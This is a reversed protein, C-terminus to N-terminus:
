GVPSQGLWEPSSSFPESLLFGGPSEDSERGEVLFRVYEYSTIETVTQVIAYLTLGVQLPDSESWAAPLAALDVFITGSEKVLFVARFQLGAPVAPTYGETTPLRNLARLINLLRAHDNDAGPVSRNEERVLIMRAPDICYLPVRLGGGVEAETREPDSQSDEPEIFEELESGTDVVPVEGSLLGSRWVFFGTAGVVIILLLTAVFLWAVFFDNRAM